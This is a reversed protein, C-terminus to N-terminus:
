GLDRDSRGCIELLLLGYSLKLITDTVTRHKYPIVPIDYYVKVDRKWQNKISHLSFRSISFVGLMHFLIRLRSLKFESDLMQEM